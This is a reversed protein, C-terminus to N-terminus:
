SLLTEILLKIREQKSDDSIRAFPAPFFIDFVEPTDLRQVFEAKVEDICKGTETSIEILIQKIESVSDM